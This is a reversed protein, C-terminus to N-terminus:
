RKLARQQKSQQEYVKRLRQEYEARDNDMKMCKYLRIWPVREAEGHDTIGMRLCYWDLTGFLGFQLQSVGAKVQEPTPKVSIKSFLRGITELQASAWYAFAMVEAADAKDCEEESMGLLLSCLAKINNAKAVEQAQILDGFSLGYLDQPPTYQGVKNPRGFRKLRSWTEPTVLDAIKYLDRMIM